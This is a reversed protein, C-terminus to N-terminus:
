CVLAVCVSLSPCQIWRVIFSSYKVRHRSNLVAAAEYLITGNMACTGWLGEEPPDEHKVHCRVLARWLLSGQQFRDASDGASLLRSSPSQMSAAQM